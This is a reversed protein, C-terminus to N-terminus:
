WSISIDRVDDRLLRPAGGFVSVTWLKTRAGSGPMASVLLDRNNPFWAIHYTRVGPLWPLQHVEGTDIIKVHLGANDGYALSSGDSSIAAELVTSGFSSTLQRETIGASAAGSRGVVWAVAMAAPIFLAVAAWRWWRRKPTPRPLAVSRVSSAASRKLKQLDARLPPASQCRLERDKELAKLVIADFGAPLAPNIESPPIPDRNLTAEHILATTTGNFAQRGTAMEYLVAGFSFL